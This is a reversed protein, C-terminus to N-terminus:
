REPTDPANRRGGSLKLSFTVVVPRHDSGVHPGLRREHIVISESHLCHDIPIRLPYPAASPWSPQLGRGHLSNRLGSAHLFRRFHPSWPTINLDGLVIVPEDLAAVIAALAALHDNRQRYGRGSLPPVPHTAVVHVRRGRHAVEALISPAYPHGFHVERVNHLPIRSYLVIGFNDEQPVELYSPHTKRLDRLRELWAANVEELVVVDPDEDAVLAAVADPDGWDTNVNLLLARIASAPPEHARRVPFVFPFLCILNIVLFATAVVGCWRRRAVFLVIVAPVLLLTYQLRFHSLLDLGHRRGGLFGLLTAVAVGAAGTCVLVQFSSRIAAIRLIRKVPSDMHRSYRRLCDFDWAFSQGPM